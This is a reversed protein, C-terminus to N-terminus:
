RRVRVVTGENAKVIENSDILVLSQSSGWWTYVTPIELVTPDILFIADYGFSPTGGCPYWVRELIEEPTAIRPKEALSLAKAVRKSSANHEWKVIACITRWQTDIFIINKVFQEENGWVALEAEAVSHCSVDFSLHQASINNDSIYTKLTIEHPSHSM